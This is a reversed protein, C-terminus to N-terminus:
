GGFPPKKDKRMEGKRNNVSKCGVRERIYIGTRKRTYIDSFYTM